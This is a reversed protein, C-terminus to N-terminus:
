ARQWLLRRAAAAAHDWTLSARVSERARRGKERAEEPNEFARRMLARLAGADPEAWVGLASGAPFFYPDYVPVLREVPILYACDDSLYEAPASYDTVIVPLGCAMAETVPLGWGEARTPLVFADCSNYLRVLADEDLPHSATVPAARRGGVARRVHADLDFRPLYPNSAHLVLEVPEDARFEECFAEVLLEVGKREEWKGVFLFRFPRRGERAKGDPRFTEVDVGEPVVGVRDADLGNAVLLGRGWGSPTWVEDLTRLIAVKDAPMATTEWVVYAVRRPGVVRTMFEVPGLGVGPADPAPESREFAEGRAPENWSVVNVAELGRWAGFFLRAHRSWSDDGFYLCFANILRGARFREHLNL